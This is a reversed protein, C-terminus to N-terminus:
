FFNLGHALCGFIVLHPYKKQLMLWALKMNKANDAILAILIKSPGVREIEIRLIEAIYQGIHSSKTNVAKLFIPEPTAFMIKM